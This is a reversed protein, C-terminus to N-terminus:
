EFAPMPTREVFPALEAHTWEPNAGRRNAVLSGLALAQRLTAGADHGALIGDLLGAAFADGTGVSDVAAVPPASGTVVVGDLVLSAGAAGRTLCVARAGVRGALDRIFAVPDGQPLGRLASLHSAEGENVKIVTATGLLADVLGIDWGGERLNVDYLKIADPCAEFLQRTTSRVTRSQQALTGIVFAAPAQDAIQRVEGPELDLLDYAAPRILTFTPTGERDLSVSAAGTVADRTQLWTTDVGRREVELHAEAGAEDDGVASVLATRHGFRQLNLLVNLPAGGIHRGDPLSDWLLEGVAVIPRKAEATRRGNRDRM